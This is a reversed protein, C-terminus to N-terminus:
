VRYAGIYSNPNLSGFGLTLKPLIHTRERRWILVVVYFSGRQKIATFVLHSNALLSLSRGVRLKHQSVWFYKKDVTFDPIIWFYRTITGGSFHLWFIQWNFIEQYIHYFVPVRAQAMWFISKPPGNPHDRPPHCGWVVDFYKDTLYRSIDFCVPVWTSSNLFNIKPHDRPPHCGWGIDFYKDTLYRSIDFFFYFELKLREFFPNKPAWKPPDQSPPM